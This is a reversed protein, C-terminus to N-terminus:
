ELPEEVQDAKYDTIFLEPCAITVIVNDVYGVCICFHSKLISPEPLRRSGRRSRKVDVHKNARIVGAKKTFRAFFTLRVYAFFEIEV